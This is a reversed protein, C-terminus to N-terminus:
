FIENQISDVSFGEKEVAAILINEKVEKEKKTQPLLKRRGSMWCMECWKKKSQGFIHSSRWNCCDFYAGCDCKGDIKERGKGLLFPPCLLKGRDVM